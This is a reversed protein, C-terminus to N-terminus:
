VNPNKPEVVDFYPGKNHVSYSNNPLPTHESPGSKNLVHPVKQQTRQNSDSIHSSDRKKPNPKNSVEQNTVDNFITSTGIFTENSLNLVTSNILNEDLVSCGDVSMNDDDQDNPPNNDDSAM